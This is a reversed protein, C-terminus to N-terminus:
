STFFCNTLQSEPPKEVRTSTANPQMTGPVPVTTLIDLLYPSDLDIDDDTYVVRDGVRHVASGVQDATLDSDAEPEDPYVYADLEDETSSESVELQITSTDTRGATELFDKHIERFKVTPCYPVRRQRPEKQIKYWQGVKIMNVLTWADQNGRTPSNLWTITSGTRESDDPMSNILVAFIKTALIALVRAHPHAELAKWWKYTDANTVPQDFPHQNCWFYQLQNKLEKVIQRQEIEHVLKAFQDNADMAMDAHDLM